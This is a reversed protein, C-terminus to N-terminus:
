FTIPFTYPFGVSGNRNAFLTDGVYIKSLRHPEAEEFVYYWTKMDVTENAVMVNYEAQTVDRSLMTSSNRSVLLTTPFGTKVAVGTVTAGEGSQEVTDFKGAIDQKTAYGSLDLETTGIGQWSYNTGDSTTIYMDFGNGNAVLYINGATSASAAMTGTYTDEGYTVTVGAPINAVVPTSAGDWAKVYATSSLASLDSVSAAGINQRAQAKQAETLSQIAYKVVDAVDLTINGSGLLSQGNVTRINYGSVLASQKEDWTTKESDSVTRHFADDTLESLAYTPKNTAKAWEPVTPDTENQVATLAASIANQVAEALDTLPIGTSPKLYANAANSRITALDSIIDQKTDIAAKVVKNQVANESTTSLASDITFGIQINGSGLLSQNNITKINTGSVLLLQYNSPNISDLKAKDPGSMKGALVPTANTLALSRDIADQVEPGQQTLRYESM